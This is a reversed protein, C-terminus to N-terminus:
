GPKPHNELTQANISDGSKAPRATDFQKKCEASFSSINNHGTSYAVASVRLSNHPQLYRGFQKTGPVFCLNLYSM